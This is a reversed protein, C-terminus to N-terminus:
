GRRGGGGGVGGHCGGYQQGRRHTETHAKTMKQKTDRMLSITHNRDKEVHRIESLMINELDMWAPVSPLMGDKYPQTPSWQSPLNRTHTHTHTLACSRSHRLGTHGQPSQIYGLPCHLGQLHGHEPWCM